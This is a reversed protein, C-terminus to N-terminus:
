PPRRRDPTLRLVPIATAGREYFGIFARRNPTPISGSTRAAPRAACQHRRDDRGPGRAARPLRAPGSASPWRPGQPGSSTSSTPIAGLPRPRPQGAGLCIHLVAGKPLHVGYFDVDETVWRSFMPDTPQWRLSEEIAPRLLSRDARVADLLEPQQLLAALTIGM